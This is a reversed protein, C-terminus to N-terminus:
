INVTKIYINGSHRIFKCYRNYFNYQNKHAENNCHPRQWKKIEIMIGLGGGGEGRMNQTYLKLVILFLIEPCKKHNNLNNSIKKTKFEENYM